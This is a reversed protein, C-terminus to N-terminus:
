PLAAASSALLHMAFNQSSAAPKSNATWRSRTSDKAFRASPGWVYSVDNIVSNFALSTSGQRGLHIDSIQSTHNSLVYFSYHLSIGTRQHVPQPLVDSQGLLVHHITDRPDKSGGPQSGWKLCDAQRARRPKLHVHPGGYCVTRRDQRRPQTQSLRYARRLCNAQRVTGRPKPARRSPGGTKLCNAQRGM